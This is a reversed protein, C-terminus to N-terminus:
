LQDIESSSQHASRPMKSIVEFSSSFGDGQDATMIVTTPPVTADVCSQDAQIRRAPLSSSDPQMRVHQSTDTYQPMNPTRKLLLQLKARDGLVLGSARLEQLLEALDDESLLRLEDM